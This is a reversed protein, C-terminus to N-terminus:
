NEGPGVCKDKYFEQTVSSVSTYPSLTLRRQGEKNRRGVVVGAKGHARHSGHVM